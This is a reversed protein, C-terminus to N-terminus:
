LIKYLTEPIPYNRHNLVAGLVPVRADELDHMAKRVSERRSSNAKLVMVLGDVVRGMLVAENGLNLPPADILVYDFQARLETIRSRMRDSNLLMQWNAAAGGCSLLSLNRYDLPSIFSAVPDPTILSDSLGHHNEVEFYRNLTPSRLNADVVCVSGTVQSALIEAARSCIWSCGNGAETGSFVVFHSAKAGPLLFVRQVLKAVEEKQIAEMELKLPKLEIPSQQPVAPIGPMEVGVEFMEREKGLNQLLEFNRSM